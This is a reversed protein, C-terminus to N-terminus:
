NYLWSNYYCPPYHCWDNATTKDDMINQVKVPLGTTCRSNDQNKLEFMQRDKGFKNPSKFGNTDVFFRSESDYYLAWSRGSVDIFSLSSGTNPFGGNADNVTEGQAWCSNLQAATCDKSVKFAAKLVAWDAATAVTDSVGTRPMLSGDSLAQAFAQSIDSYAKKYAVKYTQTEINNMLDPITMEAVIGIIGMVIIVEALTFAINNNFNSIITKM